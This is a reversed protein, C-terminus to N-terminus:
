CGSVGRGIWHSRVCARTQQTSRSAVAGCTSSHCLFSGSPHSDVSAARDRVICTRCLLPSFPPQRCCYDFATAEIWNTAPVCWTPRQQRDPSDRAPLRIPNPARGSVAETGRRKRRQHLFRRHEAVSWGCHGTHPCRGVRPPQHLERRCLCDSRRRRRQQIICCTSCRCPVPPVHVHRRGSHSAGRIAITPTGANADSVGVNARDSLTTALWASAFGVPQANHARMGLSQFCPTSPRCSKCPTRANASAVATFDNRLRARGAGHSYMSHRPNDESYAPRYAYWCDDTCHTPLLRGCGRAEKPQQHATARAATTLGATARERLRCLNSGSCRGAAAERREAAMCGCLPYTRLLVAHPPGTM